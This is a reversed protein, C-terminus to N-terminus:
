PYSARASSASDSSCVPCAHDRKLKLTRVRGSLGDFLMLQGILPKGAGTILKIVELAAWSGLVGTLAGVVGEDACSRGPEDRVDGVLCRYCPSEGDHSAFVSLQGDFQGVAASVLTKGLRHCAAGVILRTAFTDCGDLVIDYPALLSEVNDETLRLAHQHIIPDPNLVSLHAEAASVKTKGVDESQFLVQRQLNSLSVTDDDIIGLTGVGAAALYLLAPAGIGGAGVVAVKAGLLAKQGAGGIDHLVIHRAYRDLQSDTLLSM